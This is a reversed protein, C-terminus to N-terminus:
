RRRRCRMRETELSFPSVNVAPEPHVYAYPTPASASGKEEREIGLRSTEGSTAAAMLACVRSTPRAVYSAIWFVSAVSREGEAHRSSSPAKAATLAARLVSFAAMRRSMSSATPASRPRQRLATMRACHSPLHARWGSASASFAMPVHGRGRVWGFREAHLLHAAAIGGAGRPEGLRRAVRRAVCRRRRVDSGKDGGSHVHFPEVAEEQPWIDAGQRRLLGGLVEIALVGRNALGRHERHTCRLGFSSGSGTARHCEKRRFAGRRATSRSAPHPRPPTCRRITSAAPRPADTQGRTPPRVVAAPARTTRSRPAREAS